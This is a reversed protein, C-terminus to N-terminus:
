ERPEIKESKIELFVRRNITRGEPLSNDGLMVRESTRKNQNWRYIFCPDKAGLGKAKIMVHHDKLWKAFQEDTNLNLLYKMYKQLRDLYHEARKTSVDDNAYEPGISDTYGSVTAFLKYDGKQARYILRRAVYETRSELYKSQPQDENFLYIILVLNEIKEGIKFVRIAMTDSSTIFKGGMKDWLGLKVFYEDDFDLFHGANDRWDWSLTSPVPPKGSDLTRVINGKSNVIYVSYSDVGADSTVNITVLNEESGEVQFDELVKDAVKPRYVVAEANPFVCVHNESAEDNIELHIYIRDKLMEDIQSRLWKTVTAARTFSMDSNEESKAYGEVLIVIEHNENLISKIKEINSSLPEYSNPQLANVAFSLDIKFDKDEIVKTILEVRRNEDHMRIKDKPIWQIRPNGARSQSKDYETKVIKVQDAPAGLALLRKKVTESRVIALEATDRDDTDVDYYGYIELVASPTTNLRGAVIKLMMDFRPNIDTSNKDFFVIPIIPEEEQYLMLQSVSLLREEPIVDGKSIDYVVLTTSDINNSEDVEKIKGHVGPLKKGTNDISFYIKFEGRDPPTWNWSLDIIEDPHITIREVPVILVYEGDSNRYYLSMFVKREIIEGRNEIQALIEVEEDKMANKPNVGFSSKVLALDRIPVEPPTVWLNFGVRHTTVYDKSLETAIPYSIAYDASWSSNKGPKYYGFGFTVDHRNWGTRIALNKGFKAEIGGHIDINKDSPADMTYEVEFSPTIVKMPMALGARIKVPLEGGEVDSIAINPKNINKVSAGFTLNRIPRIFIGADITYTAKSTKNNLIPDNQDFGTSNALNFNSRYIGGNLGLSLCVGDPEGIIRKSYGFTIKGESYIDSLFQIYSLGFSGFLFRRDLKLVTSIAGEQVFDGDIGVNFASYGLSLSINSFADMAGPNWIPAFGDFALATYAGGMGIARPSTEDVQAFAFISPILILILIHTIKM